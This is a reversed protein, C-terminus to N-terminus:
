HSSALDPLRGGSEITDLCSIVNVRRVLLHCASGNFFLLSLLRHSESHCKDLANQTVEAACEEVAKDM